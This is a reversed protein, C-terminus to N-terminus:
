KSNGLKIQKQGPRTMDQGSQGTPIVQIEGGNELFARTAVEIQQRLQQKSVDDQKKKTAM